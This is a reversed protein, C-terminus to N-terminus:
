LSQLSEDVESLESDVNEVDTDNLYVEIDDVEDSEGLTELRRVQEDQSIGSNKKFDGLDLVGFVLLAAGVVAVSILIILNLLGSKRTQM